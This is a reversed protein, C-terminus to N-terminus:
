KSKVDISPLDRDDRFAIGVPFRPIKSDTRDFFKVTLMKNIYKKRNEYQKKREKMATKMTCEFTHNSEDNQCIFIAHGEMKGVGEIVNVVLFEADQFDKVKLLDSSRYGWLYTSNTARLISGEYEHERTYKDHWFFVDSKNTVHNSKLFKIISM